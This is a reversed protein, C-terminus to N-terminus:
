RRAQAVASLVFAARSPVREANLGRSKWVLNLIRQDNEEAVRAEGPEEGFLAADAHM